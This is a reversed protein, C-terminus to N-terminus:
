VLERFADFDTTESRHNPNSQTNTYFYAISRM